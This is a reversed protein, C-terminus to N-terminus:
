LTYLKTIFELYECHVSALSDPYGTFCHSLKSSISMSENLSHIVFCLVLPLPFQTKCGVSAHTINGGM